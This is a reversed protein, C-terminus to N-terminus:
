KVVNPAHQKWGESWNRRTQGSKSYNEVNIDSIRIDVANKTSDLFKTVEGVNVGKITIDRIPEDSDGDLLYVFEAWDAGVNRVELDHIKTKRIEFTPVLTRYQFMVDTEINVIGRVSNAFCDEVKIDCVEGGRRENTKLRLVNLMYDGTCHHVYVNSIGCSLESGAAMFSGGCEVRCNRVVIDKTPMNLDWGDKNRGAKFCIADDNQYFTCREVVAHQVMDLDIGDSNHGTAHVNVDHVWVDKCMFLHLCWMPSNVLKFDAFQVNRCRNFEVFLPRMNAGEEYAHRQDFPIGTCAMTAIKKTAELHSAPRDYWEYWNDMMTELTGPGTIAVNECEYANILPSWNMVEMAEWTTRVIPFWSRDDTFLLKAGESLYLNCNSKFSVPGTIWEGEPIVVRGGGAKNCAAMAKAIAKMNAAIDGKKAGYKTIPFDKGPFVHMELPKFEFPAEPAVVVNSPRVPLLNAKVFDWAGKVYFQHGGNGEYLSCGDPNGAAAYITKLEKMAERTAEIPFIPDQNGNIAHFLRPATLGAIDQMDGLNLIGPNYNCACHNIVGISPIFPCFSAGPMSISIRTDIAGAYITATGGGSNGTMIINTGDVPLTELAWDITRSIDWVREGILTRRILANRRAWPSCSSLEDKEIDKKVRTKGFARTTPLVAIYGQEMAQVAIDRENHFRQTPDIYTEPDKNHGQMTIVLPVKGQIGKPKLVVLPLPLGPETMLVWREQIYSGKDESDIQTCTPRYTAYQREMAALGLLDKLESRFESQWKRFDESRYKDFDYTMRGTQYISLSYDIDNFVPVQADLQGSLVLATFVSIFIRKM